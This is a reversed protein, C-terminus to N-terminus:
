NKFGGGEKSHDFKKVDFGDPGEGHLKAVIDFTPPAPHLAKGREVM